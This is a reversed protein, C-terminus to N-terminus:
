RTDSSISSMRECCFFISAASVLASLRCLMSTKELWDISGGLIANHSSLRECSELVLFHAINRRHLEDPNGLSVAIDDLKPTLNKFTDAFEDILFTDRVAANAEDIDIEGRSLTHVRPKDRVKGSDRVRM